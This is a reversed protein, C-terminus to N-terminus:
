NMRYIYYWVGDIKQENEAGDYAAITHGRGDSLLADRKWSDRDFYQAVGPPCEPLICEDIYSELRENAAADAESDTLVLYEGPESECEYTNDGYTCETIEDPSVSLHAALALVCPDHDSTSM